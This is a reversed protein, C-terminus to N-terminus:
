QDKLNRCRLQPDVERDKAVDFLLCIFEELEAENAYDEVCYKNILTSDKSVTVQCELCSTYDLGSCSEVFGQDDGCSSLISTTIFLAIPLLQKLLM